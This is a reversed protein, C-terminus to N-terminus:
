YIEIIALKSLMQFRNFSPLNSYRINWTEKQFLNLILPLHAPPSHFLFCCAGRPNRSPPSACAPSRTFLGRNPKIHGFSSVACSDKTYKVEFSRYQAWSLFTFLCEANGLRFTPSRTRQMLPMVLGRGAEISYYACLRLCRGTMRSVCRGRVYDLDPGTGKLRM